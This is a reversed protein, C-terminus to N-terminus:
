LPETPFVPFLLFICINICINSISILTNVIYYININLVIKDTHCVQLATYLSTGTLKIFAARICLLDEESHSVMIRQVIEKQLLSIFIPLWHM